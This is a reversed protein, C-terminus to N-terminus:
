VEKKGETKIRRLYRTIIVLKLSYDWLIKDGRFLDEITIILSVLQEKRTLEEGIAKNKGRKRAVGLLLLKGVESDTLRLPHSPSSKKERKNKEM